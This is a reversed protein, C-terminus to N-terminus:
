GELLSALRAALEAGDGGIEVIKIRATEGSRLTVRSRAVGLRNALVECLAKNAAGEVPPAALKLAVAPRGDADHVIGVIESRRARPTVRIALRLGDRVIEFPQDPSSPIRAM